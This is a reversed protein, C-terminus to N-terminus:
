GPDALASAAPRAAGRSRRCSSVEDSAHRRRIRTQILATRRRQSAAPTPEGHQRTARRGVTATPVRIGGVDSRGRSRAGSSLARRSRGDYGARQALPAHGRRSSPASVPDSYAGAGPPRVRHGPGLIRPVTSRAGWKCLRGPSEPAGTASRPSVSAGSKTPTSWGRWSGPPLPPADEQSSRGRSASTSRCGSSAHGVSALTPLRGPM